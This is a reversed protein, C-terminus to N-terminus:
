GWFRNFFYIIIKDDNENCDIFDSLYQYVLMIIDDVNM